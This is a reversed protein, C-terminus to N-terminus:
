ATRRKIWCAGTYLHDAILIKHTWMLEMNSYSNSWGTTIKISLGTYVRQDMKILWFILLRFLTDCVILKSAYMRVWLNVPYHNPHTISYKSMYGVWNSLFTPYKSMYGVWNSLFTPYKSMYGVRNSLITSYVSNPVHTLVWNSMRSM